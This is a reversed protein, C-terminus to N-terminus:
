LSEQDSECNTFDVRKLNTLSKILELREASMKVNLLALKALNSFPTQMPEIRINSTRFDNNEGKCSFILERLNAMGALIEFSPDELCPYISIKLVRLSHSNTLSNILQSNWFCLNLELRELTKLQDKLDFEFSHGQVTLSRLKHLRSLPDLKEFSYDHSLKLHTLNTLNGLLECGGDLTTLDSVDLSTLLPLSLLSIQEAVLCSRRNDEPLERWKQLFVRKQEERQQAIPTGIDKIDNISLSKFIDDDLNKRSSLFGNNITLDTLNRCGNEVLIDVEPSYLTGFNLETLSSISKIAQLGGNRIFAAPSQGTLKLASLQRLDTIHGLGRGEINPCATLSLRKLDTLPQLHKLDDDSLCHNNEFSLETLKKLTKIQDLQRQAWFTSLPNGQVILTKLEHFRGLAEFARCSIQEPISMKEIFNNGALCWMPHVLRITRKTQLDLYGQKHLISLGTYLADQDIPNLPSTNISPSM